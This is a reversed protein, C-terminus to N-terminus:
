FFFERVGEMNDNCHTLKYLEMTHKCTLFQETSSSCCFTGSVETRQISHLLHHNPNHLIELCLDQSQVPDFIIPPLIQDNIVKFFPHCVTIYREITISVTFYISGSFLVDTEMDLEVQEGTLSIHALPLLVPLLKNFM